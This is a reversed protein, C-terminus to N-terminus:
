THIHPTNHTTHQTRSGLHTLTLKKFTATTNAATIHQPLSNWDRITRPFYSHLYCDTNAHYTIYKQNHTNRTRHTNAHHLYEQKDIDIHNNTIKYMITLRHAQRRLTLHDMNIQQKIHTPIGFITTYNNTIFVAESSHVRTQTHKNAHISGMSCCLLGTKTSCIHQLSRTKHRTHM